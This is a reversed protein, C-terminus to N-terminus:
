LVRPEESTAVAETTVTQPHRDFVFFLVHQVVYSTRETLSQCLQIFALCTHCLQRYIEFHHSQHVAYWALYSLIEIGNALYM